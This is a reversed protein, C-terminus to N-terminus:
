ENAIISHYTDADIIQSLLCYRALSKPNGDKLKSENEVLLVYQGLECGIHYGTERLAQRLKRLILIMDDSDDDDAKDADQTVPYFFSIPYGEYPNRIRHKPVDTKVKNAM